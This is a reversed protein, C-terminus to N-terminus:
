KNQEKLEFDACFWNDCDEATLLEAEIGIFDLSFAYENGSGRYCNKDNECFLSKRNYFKCEVCRAVNGNDDYARIM